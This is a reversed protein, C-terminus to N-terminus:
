AAVVYCGAREPHDQVWASSAVSRMARLIALDGGAVFTFVMGFVALQSYGFILGVAFPILGVVILPMMVGMRYTRARMPMTPSAYPTFTKLQMGFRIDKWRLRGVVKWTVGHVLEHTLVGVVFLPGGVQLSLVSDLGRTLSGLDWMWLWLAAQAALIPIALAFLEVLAREMSLSYDKVIRFVPKMSSDIAHGKM